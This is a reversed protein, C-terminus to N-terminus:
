ATRAATAATARSAGTWSTEARRLIARTESAPRAQARVSDFVRRLWRVTEEDTYVSGSLANETYAAADTVMLSASALPITVPPVVQMVMNSRGALEALRACQAAMVQASGIARYLSAMDVLLTVAPGDERFIRRQRAMRGNLRAEIQGVTAGPHIALMGRAYGEVQAIGSVIGPTWASLEAAQDEYQSWDRFGAPMWTRSSDYFSAFWGRLEPFVRDCAQAVAQTPPRKGTEVRSLTTYDIGTRAAMERLTWGRGQKMKKMQRGFSTVASNANTAAVCSTQCM